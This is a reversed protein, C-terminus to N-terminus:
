IIAQRRNPVLGNDYGITNKNGVSGQIETFNSDFHLIKMCHYSNSFITQLITAM